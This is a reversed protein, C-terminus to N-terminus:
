IRLRKKGRRFAEKEVGRTLLMEIVRAAVM